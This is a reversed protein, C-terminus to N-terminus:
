ERGQNKLKESVLEKKADMTVIFYTEYDSEELNEYLRKEMMVNVLMATTNSHGVILVASQQHIDKFRTVLSDVNSFGYEKVDLELHEAIPAATQQTRKYPTSYIASINYEELMEIWGQAREVGESSLDPDSTGDDAKEAHRIFIYTSEASANDHTSQACLPIAIFSTILVFLINKM